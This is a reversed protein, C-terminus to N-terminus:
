IDDQCVAIFREPVTTMKRKEYDFFVLGTKARAIEKGTQKNTLRYYYDCGFRHFDTCALAVHITDGHFAESKYIIAADTMITGCGEIDLESYGLHRMHRTRAEHILSLIKDNGLHGAYNVDTVRVVFETTFPLKAPLKFKIRAM